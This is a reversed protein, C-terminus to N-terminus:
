AQPRLNVSTNQTNPLCFKYSTADYDFNHHNVEELDEGHGICNLIAGINQANLLIDVGLVRSWILEDGSENPPTYFDGGLNAYFLKVLFPYIKVKNQREDILPLFGNQRTINEIDFAVFDEM